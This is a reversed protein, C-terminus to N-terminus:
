LPGLLLFFLFNRIFYKFLHYSFFERVHSLFYDVLDLFCLTEPLIFGLLFVSLCMTILSVFILSLSFINFAVLPFCGIVYIPVGMLNDASKEVSIRCVLLSLWLINLIIFTFFRCDLISYGTLTLREKPNSPSILLKGFLCFNLSNLVM